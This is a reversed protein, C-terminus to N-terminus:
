LKKKIKILYKQTVTKKKNRDCLLEFLKITTYNRDTGHVFRFSTIIFTHLNSTSLNYKHILPVIINIIGM